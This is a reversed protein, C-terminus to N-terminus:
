RKLTVGAFDLLGLPTIALGQVYPKVLSYDVSHYLPVVVHDDILMKEASRYLAGRKEADPETRAAAIAADFDPNAYRTRNYQGGAGFLVELFNQPDPYDAIWSLDYLNYQESELAAMEAPPLAEDLYAQLEAQTIRRPM